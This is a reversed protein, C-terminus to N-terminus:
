QLTGVIGIKGGEAKGIFSPRRLDGKADWTSELLIGPEDKVTVTLGHLADAISAGDLKGAKQAAAKLAHLAAYSSIANHDPAHKFRALFKERFAKMEETPADASLGLHCVAGDAAAGVIDLVNQQLLTTEGVLPSTLGSKRYELIFRATDEATM